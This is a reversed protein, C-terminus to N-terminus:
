SDEGSTSRRAAAIVDIGSVVTLAVAVWIASIWLWHLNATLPLLAFGIASM